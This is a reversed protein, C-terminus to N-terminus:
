SADKFRQELMWKPAMSWHSTGRTCLKSPRGTQMKFRTMDDRSYHLEKATVKDPREYFRVDYESSFNVMKKKPKASIASQRAQAPFDVILDSSM